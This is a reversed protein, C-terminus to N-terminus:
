ACSRVENVAILLEQIPKTEEPAGHDPWALMQYHVCQFAEASGAMRVALARKQIDASDQGLTASSDCTVTIDDEQLVAGLLSGRTRFDLIQPVGLQRIM